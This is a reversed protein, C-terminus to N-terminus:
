TVRQYNRGFMWRSSVNEFRAAASVSFLVRLNQPLYSLLAAFRPSPPSPPPLSMQHMRGRTQASSGGVRDSNASAPSWIRQSCISEGGVLILNGRRSFSVCLSLPLVFLFVAIEGNDTKCPLCPHDREAGKRSRLLPPPPPPPPPPGQPILSKSTGQLESARESWKILLNIVRRGFIKLFFFCCPRTCLCDCTNRKLPAPTLCICVWGSSFRGRPRTTCFAVM